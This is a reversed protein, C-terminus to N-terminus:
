FNCNTREAAMSTASPRRIEFMGLRHSETTQPVSVASSRRLTLVPQALEPPRRIPPRSVLLTPPCENGIGLDDLEEIPSVDSRGIVM